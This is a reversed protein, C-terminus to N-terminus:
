IDPEFMLSEADVKKGFEEEHAKKAQLDANAQVAFACFLFMLIFIVIGTIIM